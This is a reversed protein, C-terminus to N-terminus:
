TQSTEGSGPVTVTAVDGDPFTLTFTGGASPTWRGSYNGDGAAKDAGVGDDQLTVAQGGPDVTVAVDGNPNACNIHLAALDIPTGVSGALTNGIPRLRSRVVSNSCTLAGLANLRKQTITNALASINEGGALILNKIARWDRAPDQAKLLAAVGAVHPTAMSTGSFASYTNGKTTSLISVGPAGLHVTRKGFNSFSAKNDNRDTAAM